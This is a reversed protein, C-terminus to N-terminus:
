VIRKFLKEITSKNLKIAVPRGHPCMLTCQTQIVEKILLRLEEDPVTQGGKIAAKCAQQIIKENIYDSATKKTMGSLGSFLGSILEQINVETLVSPIATLMFKNTGINEFEFGIKEFQLKNESIFLKENANVEFVYPVLLHQVVKQNGECSRKFADYLLREHAAHQDILYLDNESQLLIYTEFLNGLIKFKDKNAIAEPIITLLSDNQVKSLEKNLRDSVADSINDKELTVKVTQNSEVNKQYVSSFISGSDSLVEPKSIRASGFSVATDTNKIYEPKIINQNDRSVTSNLEFKPKSPEGIKPKQYSATIDPVKYNEVLMKRIQRNVFEYILDGDKFRVDMKNPHVNVDVYDSPMTLHLVWFPFQRSMLRDAYADHVATSILKNQIYRGNIVLTQYTRNPKSYSERGILGIMNFQALNCNVNICNDIAQQGYVAFVAGSIGQGQSQLAIKGDCALKFSIQPNSLILRSVLNVIEAEEAANSKLFLARVPVNYFLDEVSIYTGQPAGKEVTESKGDSITIQTGLADAVTKTSLRVKSVAAISALAEGRFGLTKVAFLDDAKFIKSTAHPKFATSVYEKDIGSGNDSITIRKKGGSFIEISIKGAGADISNEVLEKVISAPREVVEGAAIKNFVDSSLVNIKAM